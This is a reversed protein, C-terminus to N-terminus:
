WIHGLPRHNLAYIALRGKSINVYPLNALCLRKTNKITYVTIFEADSKATVSYKEVGAESNFKLVKQEASQLYQFSEPNVM